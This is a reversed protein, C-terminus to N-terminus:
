QCCTGSLGTKLSGPLLMVFTGCRGGISAEAPMGAGSYRGFGCGSRMQRALGAGGQRAAQRGAVHRLERAKSHADM